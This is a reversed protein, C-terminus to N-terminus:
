PSSLTLPYVHSGNPYLIGWHKETEAGSKQNENFLAFIFTPIFQGPRRPTGLSPVALTKKILRENYEAANEVSAGPGGDTPWGTEGVAIKLDGFGLKELAAVFADIQADLLNTYVLNGDKVTTQGSFLAYDLPIDGNATSYALYPYSNVFLFSDTSSIFNLIPKLMTETLEERFRGASPPYSANLVDMALCTSIQIKNKLALTELAEHLNQMAPVLDPWSSQLNPRSLLENGVTITHIRTKPLFPLVKQTIWNKAATKSSALTEIEENTAATVVKVHTESLAALVSPDSDYIKVDRFGLSRILKVAEEPRPLDSGLRGYNIGMTPQSLTKMSRRAASCFSLSSLLLLATATISLSVAEKM